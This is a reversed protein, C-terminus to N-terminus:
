FDSLNYEEEKPYNTHLCIVIAFLLKDNNEKGRHVGARAGECGFVYQAITGKNQLSSM